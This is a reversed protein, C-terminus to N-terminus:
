SEECWKDEERIAAEEEPTTGLSIGLTAALAGPRYGAAGAGAASQASGPIPPRRPAGPFTAPLPM